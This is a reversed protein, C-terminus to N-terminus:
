LTYSVGVKFIPLVTLLPLEKKMESIKDDIFSLKGDLNTNMDVIGTYLLGIDLSFALGKQNVMKYWGCGFYPSIDGMSLTAIVPSKEIVLINKSKYVGAVFSFVGNFPRYDALLGYNLMDLTMNNSKDEYLFKNFDLKVQMNSIVPIAVSVSGGLSGLGMNTYIHLNDKAYSSVSIFLLVISLIKKM